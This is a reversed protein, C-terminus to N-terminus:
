KPFIHILLWICWYELSIIGIDSRMQNQFTSQHGIIPPILHTQLDEWSSIIANIHSFYATAIMNVTLVLLLVLAVKWKTKSLAKRWIHDWFYVGYFLYLGCNCSEFHMLTHIKTWNIMVYVNTLFVFLFCCCCLCFLFLFCVFCCPFKLLYHHWSLSSM